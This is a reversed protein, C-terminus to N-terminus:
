IRAYSVGGKLSRKPYLNRRGDGWPTVAAGGFGRGRGRGRGLGRGQGFGPTFGNTPGRGRGYSRGYAVGYGTDDPNCVGRGGGTMPGAGMPGTGDFRPM